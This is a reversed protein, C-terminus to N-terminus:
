LFKCTQWRHLIMGVVQAFTVTSFVLLFVLGLVDLMLVDREIFVEPSEKNEPANYTFNYHVGDLGNLNFSTLITWPMKLNSQLRLMTILVVYICNIVLFNFIFSDRYEFLSRNTKATERKYNAQTKYVKEFPELYQQILKEWFHKEEIKLFKVRKGTLKKLDEIWYPNSEGYLRPPPSPPRQEEENSTVVEIVNEEEEFEEDERIANKADKLNSLSGSRSRFGSGTSSRRRNYYIGASGEIRSLRHNVEHLSKGIKELQANPDNPDPHTFCLCRMLNGCSFDVSGKEEKTVQANDQQQAGSFKFQNFMTDLVGIKKDKDLEAAIRDDEAKEEATKDEAKKERTGWGTNWLNFLSYIVLLIYMSPITVLYVPMYLMCYSEELHLMGALLLPGIFSMFTMATPALWGSIRLM